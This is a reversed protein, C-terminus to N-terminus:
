PAVHDGHSRRSACSPATSASREIPHGSSIRPPRRRDLGREHNSAEHINERGTGQANPMSGLPEPPSKATLTTPSCTGASRSPQAPRSPPTLWGPSTDPRRPHTTRDAKSPEGHPHTRHISRPRTGLRRHTGRRARRVRRRRHHSRLHKAPRPQHVGRPRALRRGRPPKRPAPDPRRPTTGRPTGARDQSSPRTSPEYTLSNEVYATNSRLATSLLALHDLEPDLGRVTGAAEALRDAHSALDRRLAAEHVMRGYVAVSSVDPSSLALGALRPEDVSPLDAQVAIQESMAAGWIDGQTARVDLFAAFIAQHDAQDFHRPLLYPVDNVLSPDYILAGLLAEETRHLLNPM